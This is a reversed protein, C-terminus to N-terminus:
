KKKLLSSVGRVIGDVVLRVPATFVSIIESGFRDLVQTLWSTNNNKTTDIMHKLQNIEANMEESKKRFGENLLEEQVKLKHELVMNQEKIINEREREMKEKLQDINEQLSRQQAEMQQKQELLKQRLLEQEKEAAEKSAKEAAIAKEGDTLAKDAQWISKEISAQSQLFNQLVENAKYKLVFVRLKVQLNDGSPM